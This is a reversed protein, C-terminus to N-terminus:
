LGTYVSQLLSKDLPVPHNEHREGKEKKSEFLEPRHIFDVAQQVVKPNNLIRNHGLGETAMLRAGPWTAALNKGETFKVQADERDHIILLPTTMSQALSRDQFVRWRAGYTSDFHDDLRRRLKQNLGLIQAFFNLWGAPNSPPAIYVLREARVGDKLALTVAPGGMSHSIIGDFPGAIKDALRVGDAFDFISSRKGESAGHGLADFSVVRYGQELLAPIFESLQTGWGNWGHVLLITPGRGWTYFQIRNEGQPVSFTMASKLLKEKDQQPNRRTSLFLRAAWRTALDPAVAGVSNLAAGYGRALLDVLRVNTSKNKQVKVQSM